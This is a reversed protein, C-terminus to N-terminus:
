STQHTTRDKFSMQAASNQEGGGCIGTGDWGVGGRGARGRGQGACRVHGTTGVCRTGWGHQGVEGRVKWGVRDGGQRVGAGGQGASHVPM